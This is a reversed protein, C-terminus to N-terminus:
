LEVNFDAFFVVLVLIFIIFLALNFYILRNYYTVKKVIQDVDSKKELNLNRSFFPLLLSIRYINFFEFSNYVGSYSGYKNFKDPNIKKLYEFHYKGKTFMLAILSFILIAFIGLILYAGFTLM